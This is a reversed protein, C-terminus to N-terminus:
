KVRESRGSSVLVLKGVGVRATVFSSPTVDEVAALKPRGLLGAKEAAGSVAVSMGLLIMMRGVDPGVGAAEGVEVELLLGTLLYLLPRRGEAM